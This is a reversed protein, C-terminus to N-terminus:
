EAAALTPIVSPCPVFLVDRQLRNSFSQSFLPQNGAIRQTESCGVGYGQNGVDCEPEADRDGDHQSRPQTGSM